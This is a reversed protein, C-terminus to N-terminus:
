DRRNGILRFYFAEIKNVIKEWALEEEALLRANRGFERGLAPNTLLALVAEALSEPTDETLHGFKRMQYIPKLINMATSVIPRGAALYDNMKSPWVMDSVQTRMLPLILVDSACLYLNVDEYAAWGTELVDGRLDGPLLKKLNVRHNGILLLKVPQDMARKVLRFTRFLLDANVHWLYGLYGLLLTGEPLRQGLRARAIEQPIAQTRVIDSGHLISLTKEPPIGLDRAKKLLPEGMAIVYDAKPYFNKECFDEVPAMFLRIPLSREESRGGKGFLDAWTLILPSKFKKRLYFAPLSVVPRSEFGHIIDFKEDKLFWIRRLTDWADWGTRALGPLLDPTEVIRVGEFTTESFRLRSSPSISLLTVEHGRRALHRGQHLATYFIGGGKWTVTHTLYLIKM